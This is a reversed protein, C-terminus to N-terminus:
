TQLCIAALLKRNSEVPMKSPCLAFKRHPHAQSSAPGRELCILPGLPPPSTAGGWPGGGGCPTGWCPVERLDPHQAPEWIGEGRCHSPAM